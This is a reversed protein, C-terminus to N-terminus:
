GQLATKRLLELEEIKKQAQEKENKERKTEQKENRLNSELVKKEGQLKENQRALFAEKQELKEKAIKLATLEKTLNTHQKQCQKLQEQIQGLKLRVQNNESNSKTSKNKEERLLVELEAIKTKYDEVASKFDILSRSLEALKLLEKKVEPPLEARELESAFESAQNNVLSILKLILEQDLNPMNTPNRKAKKM